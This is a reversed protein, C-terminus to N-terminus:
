RRRRALYGVIPSIRLRNAIAGLIFAFGLGAVITAILPTDHPMADPRGRGTPDAGMSRSRRRDPLYRGLLGLPDSADRFDQQPHLGGAAPPRGPRSRRGLGEARVDAPQLQPRIFRDLTLGDAKSFVRADAAGGDKYKQLRVGKGRAMEPVQIRPFILLKRNEGLM